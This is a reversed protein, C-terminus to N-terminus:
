YIHMSLLEGGSSLYVIVLLMWLEILMYNDCMCMMLWRWMFWCITAVNGCLEKCDLYLFLYLMHDCVDYEDGLLWEYMMEYDYWDLGYLIWLCNARLVWECDLEDGLPVVYFFLQANFGFDLLCTEIGWSLMGRPWMHTCYLIGQRKV